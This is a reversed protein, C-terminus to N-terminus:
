VYAAEKGGKKFLERFVPYIDKVDKVKGMAFRGPFKAAIKEFWPWMVSTRSYTDNRVEVYAYYQVLPMITNLLLNHTEPADEDFNDGDSAHSAYINWGSGYREGVIQHMLKLASSM